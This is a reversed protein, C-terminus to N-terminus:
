EFCSYWITVNEVSKICKSSKNKSYIRKSFVEHQKIPLSLSKIKNQSLIPQCLRSLKFSMKLRYNEQVRLSIKCYKLWTINM